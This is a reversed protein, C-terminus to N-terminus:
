EPEGAGALPEMIKPLHDAVALVTAAAGKAALKRVRDHHEAFDHGNVKGDKM